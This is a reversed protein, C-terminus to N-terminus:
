REVLQTLTLAVSAGARSGTSVISARWGDKTYHEFGGTPVGLSGVSADPVWGNDLLRNRVIGRAQAEDREFQYDIVVQSVPGHHYERHLQVRAHHAAFADRLEPFRPMVSPYAHQFKQSSQESFFKVHTAQEEPHYMLVLRKEEAGIRGQFFGVHDGMAQAHSSHPFGEREFLEDYFRLIEEVPRHVVLSGEIYHKGDTITAYTHFATEPSRKRLAEIFLDTPPSYAHQLPASFAASEILILLAIFVSIIRRYSM